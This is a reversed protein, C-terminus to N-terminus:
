RINIQVHEPIKINEERKCIEKGSKSGDMMMWYGQLTRDSQINYIALGKIQNPGYTFEVSVSNPLKSSLLGLGHIIPFGREDTWILIRVDNNNGYPLVTLVASSSIHENADSRNCTYYGILDTVTSTSTAFCDITCFFLACTIFIIRIVKM